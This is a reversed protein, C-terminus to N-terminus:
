VEVEVAGWAEELILLKLADGVACGEAGGGGGHDLHPVIDVGAM